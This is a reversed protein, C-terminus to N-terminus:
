LSHDHAVAENHDFSGTGDIFKLIHSFVKKNDELSLGDSGLLLVNYNYDPMLAITTNYNTGSFMVESIESLM